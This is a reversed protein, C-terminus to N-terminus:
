KVGVNGFGARGARRDRRVLSFFYDRVPAQQQSSFVRIGKEGGDIALIARSSHQFAARPSMKVARLPKTAIRVRGEIQGCRWSFLFDLKFSVSGGDEDEGNEGGGRLNNRLRRLLGKGRVGEGAGPGAGGTRVVVKGAGVVGVEAAGAVSVGTSTAAAPSYRSPRAERRSFRRTKKLRPRTPATPAASAPESEKEGTDVM